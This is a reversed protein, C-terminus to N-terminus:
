RGKDPKRRGPPGKREEGEPKPPRDHPPRDHPGGRMFRPPGHRQDGPGPRGRRSDGSRRSSAESGKQKYMYLRWLESQMQEAPLGLLRDRQQASLEHEFFQALEEDTKSPNGRAPDGRAPDGQGSRRGFPRRHAAQRCWGAITRWQDAAPLSELHKRATASLKSRLKTLEQEPITPTKGSGPQYSRMWLAGMIARQRMPGKLDALRKRMQDPMSEIIRDGHRTVIAEMWKHLVDADEPRLLKAQRRREEERLEKIREVRKATSLEALEARVYPPLTKLWEYYRSMVRRLEPSKPDRELQKHLRRLQDQEDPNLAAFRQQRLALEHKEAPTMSEVRGQASRADDASQKEEAMVIVGVASLCAVAVLLCLWHTVGRQSHNM